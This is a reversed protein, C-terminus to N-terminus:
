EIASQQMMERTRWRARPRQVRREAIVGVGSIQDNVKKVGKFLVFRFLQKM